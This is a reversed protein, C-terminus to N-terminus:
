YINCKTRQFQIHLLILVKSVLPEGACAPIFGFVLSLGTVLMRNGRVHPSLGLFVKRRPRYVRTGGCMRPYVSIPHHHPLAKSPEGACAPIFGGGDGERIKMVPNGRVHPSLGSVTYLEDLHPPTGGCMRPYVTCHDCCCIARMPEGACAPIFRRSKTMLLTLFLNGRVHPSLGKDWLRHSGVSFTGGCMRPYVKTNVSLFIKERPEGACAPIFGKILMINRSVTRNGRVHPSLGAKAENVEARPVKVTIYDHNRTKVWDEVAFQISRMEMTDYNIMNWYSPVVFSESDGIAIGVQEGKDDFRYFETGDELTSEDDWVFRKTWATAEFVKWEAGTIEVM